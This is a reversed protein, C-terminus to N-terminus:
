LFSNKAHTENGQAIQLIIDATQQPENFANDIRHEGALLPRQQVEKNWALAREVNTFGSNRNRIRAALEEDNKIVLTAILYNHEAFLEPIQQVRFDKLDNLIVNKYGYRIYNKLIYVLNEFSMQEERPSQNIWQLDLHFNRVDGFDIYLSKLAAYLCDCVTTKGSGPAGAIIILDLSCIESM